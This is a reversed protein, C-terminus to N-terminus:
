RWLRQFTLVSIHYNLALFSYVTPIPCSPENQSSHTPQESGPSSSQSQVIPDTMEISKTNACWSVHSKAHAYNHLTDCQM